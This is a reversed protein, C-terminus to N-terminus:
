TSGRKIFDSSLLVTRNYSNNEIKKFLIDAALEGMQKVPQAMTSLAPFVVASIAINDYGTVAVDQPIHYGSELLYRNVGIALMDTACIIADPKEPYSMLKQAARYGIAFHEGAYSSLYEQYVLDSSFNYGCAILSASYGLYRYNTSVIDELGVFAVRKRGEEQFMRTIRAIDHLGDASVCSIDDRQSNPYDMFVMPIEHSIDILESIPFSSHYMCYIMGDINRQRLMQVYSLVHEKDQGANCLTVLYGQRLAASEIVNFLENYYLNTTEPILFALMKAKGTRISQAFYSPTYNLEKMASEVKERTSPKINDCNNMVRSVTSKSVGALRAVDFINNM